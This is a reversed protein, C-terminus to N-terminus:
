KRGVLSLLGRKKPQEIVPEQSIEPKFRFYRHSTGREVITIEKNEDLQKIISDQTKSVRSIIPRLETVKFPAGPERKKVWDLARKYHKPEAVSDGGAQAGKNEVDASTDQKKITLEKEKKQRVKMHAILGGGAMSALVISLSFFSRVALSVQEFSYPSENNKTANAIMLYAASGSSVYGGKEKSLKDIQRGLLSIERLTDRRNIKDKPNLTAAHKDLRQIQAQKSAIQYNDKTHQQGVLWAFAAFVSMLSLGIISISGFTVAAWYPFFRHCFAILALDGLFFLGGTVVCRFVTTGQEYGYLANQFALGVAMFFIIGCLSCYYFLSVEKKQPNRLVKSIVFITPVALLAIIEFTELQSLYELVTNYIETM